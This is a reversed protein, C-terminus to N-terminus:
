RRSRRRTPLTSRSRCPRRASVSKAGNADLDAVIVNAGAQALGIAYAREICNGRGGAGTVIAVKGDVRFADNSFIGAGLGVAVTKYYLFEDLGAKGGEKGVGSIGIGGFPTHPQIQFGGNVYVEGAELLESLRHVRQIDNTQIYAALGYDSNDAIHVAQNEDHFKMVVLAPGFIEVQCIEHDPDIPEPVTYTFEGRTDFTSLLEGTLKDCWGAYYRTWAVALDVGREGGNITTGGDLAAMRALETRQAQMLDALRNLIDRRVEPATRRWGERAAEARHVAEEVEAAGALPIEAQVVQMVPHLHSHTGGSGTTRREHGIHLHVQTVADRATEDTALTAM